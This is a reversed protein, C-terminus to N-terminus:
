LKFFQRRNRPSYSVHVWALNREDILQDYPLNLRKVAEIIEGNKEVGNERYELDAAHGTLHQSSPKGGVRANVRHCRYACTASLEGPLEAVLPAIINQHLAKLNEVVDDAPTVQETINYRKATDSHTMATLNFETTLRPM